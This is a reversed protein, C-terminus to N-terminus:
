VNYTVPCPDVQVFIVLASDELANLCLNLQHPLCKRVDGNPRLM